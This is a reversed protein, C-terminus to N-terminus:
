NGSEVPTSEVYQSTGVVTGERMPQTGGVIEVKVGIIASATAVPADDHVGYLSGKGVELAVATCEKMGTKLTTKSNLAEDIRQVVKHFVQYEMRDKPTDLLDKLWGNRGARYVYGPLSRPNLHVLPGIEEDSLGASRLVVIKVAKERQGTADDPKAISPPLDAKSPDRVALPLLLDCGGCKRRLPNLITTKCRPCKSRLAPPLATAADPPPLSAQGTLALSKDSDGRSSLRGHRRSRSVM